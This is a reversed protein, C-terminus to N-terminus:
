FWATAPKEKKLNVETDYVPESKIADINLVIKKKPYASKLKNNVINHNTELGETPDIKVKQKVVKKKKPSKFTRSKANAPKLKGPLGHFWITRGNKDVLNNM